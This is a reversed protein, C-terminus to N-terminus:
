TVESSKLAALITRLDAPTLEAERDTGIHLGHIVTTDIGRMKAFEDLFKTVNAVAQAIESTNM